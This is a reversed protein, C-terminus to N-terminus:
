NFVGLIGSAAEKASIMERIMDDYFIKVNEVSGTRLYTILKKCAQELRLAGCYSAGGKWKHAISMIAQWDNIKYLQQLTDLDKVLGNIMLTFAEKVFEKSGTLQIAKDVDLVALDKEIIILDRSHSINFQIKLSNQLKILGPKGHNGVEFRLGQPNCDLYRALILRKM